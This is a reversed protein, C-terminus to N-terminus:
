LIGVRLGSSSSVGEADLGRNDSVSLNTSNSPLKALLGYRKSLRPNRAIVVTRAQILSNLGSATILGQNRELRLTDVQTLAELGSLTYLSRTDSISLTGEVSRLAALSTLSSVGTIALHGRIHTCGEYRALEGDSSVGGGGCSRATEPAPAAHQMGSSSCAAMLSALALAIMKITM